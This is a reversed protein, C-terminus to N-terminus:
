DREAGEWTEVDADDDDDNDEPESDTDGTRGAIDARIRDEVEATVVAEALQESDDVGAAKRCQVDIYYRSDFIM